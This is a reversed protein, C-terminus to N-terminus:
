TNIFLMSLIGLFMVLKLLNSLQHYDAKTDANWVKYMLMGFVIVPLLLLCFLSIQELMRFHVIMFFIIIGATLACLTILIYRTTQLGYKLPITNAKLVADGSIDEADKVIERILNVFFAFGTYVLGNIIMTKSVSIGFSGVALAYWEFAIGVWCVLAILLAIIVNGSFLKRKFHTSYYWLLCIAIIHYFVLYPRYVAKACAMGLALGAINMVIQVLMVWRREILRGVIIKDPKNIEDAKVDFYDNILYGAASILVVSVVLAGFWAHTLAPLVLVQDFAPLVICYRVLIMTLVMFFLNLPRSLFFIAKLIKV